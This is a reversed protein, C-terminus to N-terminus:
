ILEGGIDMDVDDNDDVKRVQLLLLTLMQRILRGLVRHARQGACLSM